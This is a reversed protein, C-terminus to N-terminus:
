WAVLALGGLMVAIAGLRLSPLRERFWYGAALIGLPISLQRLAGDDRSSLKRFTM